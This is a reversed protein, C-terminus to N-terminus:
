GRPLSMVREYEDETVQYSDGALELLNDRRLVEIRGRRNRISGMGELAHTASTVAPRHAGLMAALFEHTLLLEDSGTRDQTMLIWRALRAEINFVVNVYATQGMQVILTHIFRGLLAFISPRESIAARLDPTSIRLAEGVGQVMFSHPTQDVGLIVPVGVMGERGILGTEIKGEETDALTSIIGSEPFYVHQIPQNAEILIHRLPLPVRELMPELLAFDDQSLASLLRNRVVSSQFLAM